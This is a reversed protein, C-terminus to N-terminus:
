LHHHKAHLELQAQPLYQRKTLLRQRACVRRRGDM